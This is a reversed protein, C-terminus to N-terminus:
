SAVNVMALIGVKVAEPLRDWAEVVLALDDPLNSVCIVCKEHLFTSHSHESTDPPHTADRHALQALANNQPPKTVSTDSEHELTSTSAAPISGADLYHPLLAAMMVLQMIRAKLDGQV